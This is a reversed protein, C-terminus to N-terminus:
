TCPVVHSCCPLHVICAHVLDGQEPCPHAIKRNITRIVLKEQLLVSLACTMLMEHWHLYYLVTGAAVMVAWVHILLFLSAYLLYFLPETGHRFHVHPPIKPILWMTCLEKNRCCSMEAQKTSVASTYSFFVRHPHFTKNDFLSNVKYWMCPNCKVNRGKDM